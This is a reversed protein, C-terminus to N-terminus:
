YPIPTWDPESIESIAKHIAVSMKTTISYRVGSKRVASTVKANYYGSDARLTIEGTAGAKRVRNFVQTLIGAFVAAGRAANHDVSAPALPTERTGALIASATARALSYPGSATSQASPWAATCPRKASASRAAIRAWRAPSRGPSAWRALLVVAELGAGRRPLAETSLHLREHAEVM